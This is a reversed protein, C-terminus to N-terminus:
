YNGILLSLGITGEAGTGTATNIGAGVIGSSADNKNSGVGTLSTIGTGDGIPTSKDNDNSGVGDPKVTDAGDKNPPSSTEDDNSGVGDPDTSEEIPVLLEIRGVVDKLPESEGRILVVINNDDSAGTTDDDSAGTTTEVGTTRVFFGVDTAFGM